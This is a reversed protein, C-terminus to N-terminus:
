LYITFEDLSFIAQDDLMSYWRLWDTIKRILFLCMNGNGTIHNIKKGAPLFFILM